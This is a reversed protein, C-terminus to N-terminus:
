RAIDESIDGSTEESMGGSNEQLEEKHENSFLEFYRLFTIIIESHEQPWNELFLLTKSVVQNLEPVCRM